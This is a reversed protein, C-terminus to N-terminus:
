VKNAHYFLNWNLKIQQIKADKRYKVIKRLSEEAEEFSKYKYITYVLSAISENKRIKIIKNLLNCNDYMSLCKKHETDIQENELKLYEMYEDFPEDEDYLDIYETSDDEDDAINSKLTLDDYELSTHRRVIAGKSKWYNIAVDYGKDNSVIIYIASKDLTILQGLLTVIIFDMANPTGNNVHVTEIKNIYNSLKFADRFTMKATKNSEFVIVKDHKGIKDIKNIFSVGINESDILYIRRQGKM